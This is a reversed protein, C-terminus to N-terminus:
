KKSTAWLLDGFGPMDGGTVVEGGAADYAEKAKTTWQNNLGKAESTYYLLDWVAPAKKVVGSVEQVIGRNFESINQWPGNVLVSECRRWKSDYPVTENLNYKAAYEAGKLLLNNGYGFLDYGQTKSTRAALALWGLGSMVHGQDRGSESNQGTKSNITADIGACWDNKWSWIAFNYASVDELYVAYDMLAKISAIGYNAQGIILSQKLFLWYLQISFGQGGQWKAGVETWGGEWRMIEAANAFLTGEIGILLSRDTGIINTLNTGWSDLITTSRDWHAQDKTIYWMIANQYAARADNSFSTYNSISGRSIVAYPGNMKYSSQSFSSNAFQEYGSKWPDLGKLVGNRMVELDNHSHWLGPHNFDSPKRKMGETWPVYPIAANISPVDQVLGAVGSILLLSFTLLRM